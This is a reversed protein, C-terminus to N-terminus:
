HRDVLRSEKAFRDVVVMVKTGPNEAYGDITELPGIGFVAQRPGFFQFEEM